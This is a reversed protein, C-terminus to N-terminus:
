LNKYPIRIVENKKREIGENLENLKPLIEREFKENKVM